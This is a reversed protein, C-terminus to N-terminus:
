KEEELRVLPIYAKDTFTSLTDSTLLESQM